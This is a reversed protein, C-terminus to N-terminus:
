AHLPIRDTACACRYRYIAHVEHIGEVSKKRSFYVLDHLSQLKQKMLYPFLLVRFCKMDHGWVGIISEGPAIDENSGGPPQLRARRVHPYEMSRPLDYFSTSSQKELIM